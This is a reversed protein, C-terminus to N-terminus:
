TKGHMRTTALEDKQCTAALDALPLYCRSRSVNSDRYCLTEYPFRTTDRAQCAHSAYYSVGLARDAKGNGVCFLPVTV